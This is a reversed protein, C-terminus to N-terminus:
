PSAPEAKPPTLDDFTPPVAPVIAPNGAQAPPPANGAQAPPPANGAQAPPPANGAQAPPPANGAQPPQNGSQTQASSSSGDPFKIDPYHRPYFAGEPSHPAGKRGCAALSLGACLGAALLLGRRTM